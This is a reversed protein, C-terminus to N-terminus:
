LGFAKSLEAAAIASKVLNNPSNSLAMTCSKIPFYEKEGECITMDAKTLPETHSLADNCDPLCVNEELVRTGNDVSRSKCAPSLLACGYEGSSCCHM